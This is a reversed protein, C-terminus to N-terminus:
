YHIVRFPNKHVKMNMKYIMKLISPKLVDKPKGYDKIEGSHLLAIKNSFKAALNLDHIILMVGIDEDRSINRIIKLVDIEYFLDLNALPEDLLAYKNEKNQSSPSYLQVLTKALQVRKLEGGSLSNINRNLLGQINCLKSIKLIIDEFIESFIEIGNEVWGFQIVEKVKFDFAIRSFQGMVSRKRSKEELTLSSLDNSDYFIKGKSPLHDGAVLNILSTKGAGNPGIISLIEGPKVELNINKLIDKNNIDLSINKIEISM